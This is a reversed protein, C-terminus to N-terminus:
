HGGNIGNSQQSIADGTNCLSNDRVITLMHQSGASVQYFFAESDRLGKSTVLTPEYYNTSFLNDDTEPLSHGLHISGAGWSYLQGDRTVAFSQHGSASISVVTKGSKKFYEIRRPTVFTDVVDGRVDKGLGLEGYLNLGSAYVSGDETLFLTHKVGGAIDVVPSSNAFTLSVERPEYENAISDQRTNGDIVVERTRPTTQFGLQSHNNLGCAFLRGDITRFFSCDPSAWVRDCKVDEGLFVQGYQLFQKINKIYRKESEPSVPEEILSAERDSLRGLQGLEGNGFTYVDGKRTLVIIHNDGSAIDAVSQEWDFALTPKIIPERNHERPNSSHKDWILGIRGSQARFVGWVWVSGIDTLVATHSDGATVKVIPHPLDVETPVAEHIEEDLLETDDPDGIPRGLAKEDNCGFTWVKWGSFDVAVSHASGCVAQAVPETITSVHFPRRRPRQDMNKRQGLVGPANVEEGCSMLKGAKEKPLSAIPIDIELKAKKAKPQEPVENGDGARKRNESTTELSQIDSESASQQISSFAVPISNQAAASDPQIVGERAQGPTQTANDTTENEKLQSTQTSIETTGVKPTPPNLSPTTQTSLSYTKPPRTPSEAQGDAQEITPSQIPPAPVPAKLAAEVVQEQSPFIPIQPESSPVPEEVGTSLQEEAKRKIGRSKKPSTKTPKDILTKAPVAKAKRGKAVPKEVEDITKEVANAQVLTEDENQEPGQTAKGKGYARSKPSKASSKKLQTKEKPSKEAKKTIRSKKPSIKPSKASGTSSISKSKRRGKVPSKEPPSTAIQPKKPSAKPPPTGTKSTTARSNRGGRAPPNKVEDASKDTVEELYPVAKKSTKERMARKSKPSKVAKPTLPKPSVVAKRSTRAEKPSVKTPTRIKSTTARSKRGKPSPKEVEDPKDAVKAAQPAAKKGAKTRAAGRSKPSEKTKPTSTKPSLVAKKAARTKKPSAREKVAGEKSTTARSKRTLKSTTAVPSEEEKRTTTSVEEEQPPSPDAAALRGRRKPPAM